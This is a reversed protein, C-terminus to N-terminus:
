YMGPTWGTSRSTRRLTTPVYPRGIPAYDSDSATGLNFDTMALYSSLSPYVSRTTCGETRPKMCEGQEMPTPIDREVNSGILIPNGAMDGVSHHFVWFQRTVEDESDLPIPDGAIGMYEGFRWGMSNGGHSDDQPLGWSGVGAEYGAGTSGRAFHQSPMEPEPKPEFEREEPNAEEKDVAIYDGNSFALTPTYPPRSAEGECQQTPTSEMIDELLSQIEGVLTCHVNYFMGLMDRYRDMHEAAAHPHSPTYNVAWNPVGLPLYSSCLLLDERLIFGLNISGTPSLVL